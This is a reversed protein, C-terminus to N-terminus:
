INCRKFFEKSTSFRMNRSTFEGEKFCVKKGILQPFKIEIEDIRKKLEVLRPRNIDCWCKKMFEYSPDEAKCNVDWDQLEGELESIPLYHDIIEKEEIWTCREAIAITPTVFSLLLLSYKLTKV